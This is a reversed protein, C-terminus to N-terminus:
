QTTVLHERAAQTENSLRAMDGLDSAAKRLEVYNRIITRGRWISDVRERQILLDPLEKVAEGLEVIKMEVEQIDRDLDQLKNAFELDGALKQREERLGRLKLANSDYARRASEYADTMVQVAKAFASVDIEAAAQIAKAAEEEALAANRLAEDAARLRPL